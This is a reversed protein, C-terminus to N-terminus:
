MCQFTPLAYTTSIDLLYHQLCQGIHGELECNKTHIISDAHEVTNSVMRRCQHLKINQTLVNSIALKTYGLKTTIRTRQLLSTYTGKHAEESPMHLPTQDIM